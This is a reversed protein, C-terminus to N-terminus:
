QIQKCLFMIQTDDKKTEVKFFKTLEAMTMDYDVAIHKKDKPVQDVLPTLIVFVGDKDLLRTINRLFALKDEIFAYVLRCTILKYTSDTFDNADQMELDFIEYTIENDALITYSKALAIAEESIDIGTPKFGRHWLERTLHGTGCGIDLSRAKKLSSSKAPIYELFADIDRQTIARFDRGSRYVMDWNIM